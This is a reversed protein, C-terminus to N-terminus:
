RGHCKKYKKGSGCPCPENRGVKEAHRPLQLASLPDRTGSRLATIPSRVQPPHSLPSYAPNTLNRLAEGAGWVFEEDGERPHASASAVDLIQELYKRAEALNGAERTALGLNYAAEINTPDRELAAKYEEIAEDQYGLFLLVNGYRVRLDPREREAAVQGRYLDRAEYPHMERGDAITFRKFVVPGEEDDGDDNLDGTERLAVEVMLEATLTLFSSGALEYQDVAGCKPCTIRQPIIWESYPTEQGANRRDMTALDCYIKKVFHPREYGCALCKLRLNLGANRRTLDLELEPLPPAGPLDFERQVSDFDVLFTDVREEDFAERIAPLAEVAKMEMLSLIIQGNLTEDEPRQTEAAALRATLAEAVEVGLEPHFEAIKALADAVGMSAVTELSRDFLSTRLPEMAPRGIKGLAELAEEVLEYDLSTLMTLLPQVAPSAEMDGLIQIANLPAWAASDDQETSQATTDTALEILAPVVEPGLAKVRDVLAPNLAAGAQILEARLDQWITTYDEM